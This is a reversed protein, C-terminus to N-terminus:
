LNDGGVTVTIVDIDFCTVYQAHTHLWEVYIYTHTRTIFFIYFSYYYYHYYYYLSFIIYMHM